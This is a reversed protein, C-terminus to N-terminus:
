PIALFVALIAVEDDYRKEKRYIIALQEYYWPAVGWGEGAEKSENETADVLKSLLEIAEEYRQERKLQKVREVHNTYHYGDITGADQLHRQEKNFRVVIDQAGSSEGNEPKELALASGLGVSPERLQALFAPRVDPSLLAAGHNILSRVVTSFSRQM